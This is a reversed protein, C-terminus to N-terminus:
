PTSTPTLLLSRGIRLSQNTWNAALMCLVGKKLRRPSTLYLQLSAKRWSSSSLFCRALYPIVIENPMFNLDFQTLKSAQEYARTWTSDLIFFCISVIIDYWYDRLYNFKIVLFHYNIISKRKVRFWILCSIFLSRSESPLMRRALRALRDRRSMEELNLVERM